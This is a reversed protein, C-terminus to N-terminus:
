DWSNASGLNKYLERNTIQLDHYLNLTKIKWLEYDLSSNIFVIRHNKLIQMALVTNITNLCCLDIDPLIDIETLSSLIELKDVPQKYDTLYAIDLDSAPKASSDAQSGYILVASLATNSQLKDSIAKIFAELM